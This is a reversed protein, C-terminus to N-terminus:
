QARLNRLSASSKLTFEGPAHIPTIDVVISVSVSVVDRIHAPDTVEAGSANYYRFVSLNDDFNRVSDSVTTTSVPGTYTPPLGASQTV